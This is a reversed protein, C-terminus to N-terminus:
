EERERGVERQSDMDRDSLFSDRWTVVLSSRETRLIWYPLYKTAQTSIWVSLCSWTMPQETDRGEWREEMM